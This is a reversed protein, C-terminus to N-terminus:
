ECGTKEEKAQLFSELKFENKLFHVNIISKGVLNCFISLYNTFSFFQSVLAVTWTAIYSQARKAFLEGVDFYNFEVKFLVEDVFSVPKSLLLLLHFSEAAPLHLVRLAEVCNAAIDETVM